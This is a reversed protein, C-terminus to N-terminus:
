KQHLAGARVYEEICQTLALQWDPAVLGFARALKETSLRSNLPRQAPTPYNQTTIARVDISNCNTANFIAEAFGHWSTQGRCTLHYIGSNEMWWGPAHGGLCYRTAIHATLAAISASWTPAGIQDAVINLSTRGEGALRLMTLMFNRGTAAYVWSTRLTLYKGGVAAIGEEGELKTQGYVNLPNPTDTEVYPRDLRGDFVYDTSYHVLLADLESAEEALVRPLRANILRANDVDSEAQDVATYAAANVIVAPRLERVFARVRAHDSLDLRVRDVAVIPGLGQLARVLESGVQGRAGTVLIPRLADKLVENM